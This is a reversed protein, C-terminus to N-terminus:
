IIGVALQQKVDGKEGFAGGGVATYRWNMEKGGQRYGSTDETGDGGLGSQSKDARTPGRRCMHCPAVRGSGVWLGM